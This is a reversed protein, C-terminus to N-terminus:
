KKPRAWPRQLEDKWLARPVKKQMATADRHRQMEGALEPSLEVKAHIRQDLDRLDIREQKEAGNPKLEEYPIRRKM